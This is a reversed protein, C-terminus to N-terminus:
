ARGDKAFISILSLGFPLWRGELRRQVPVVARDFWGIHATAGGRPPKRLLQYVAWYGAAGISNFYFQEVRIAEECSAGQALLQMGKKNYRRFHGAETDFSCYLFQHAPVLLFLTGGPNLMALMRALAGRDDEIHELVNMCLVFDFQGSVSQVDAHRVELRPSAVENRCRRVAPESIDISLLSAIAPAAVMRRTFMGVGCGVELVAGRVFPAFQEYTWDAYNAAVAMEASSVFLDDALQPDTSM